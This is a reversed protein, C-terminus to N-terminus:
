GNAANVGTLKLAPGKARRSIVPRKGEALLNIKVM